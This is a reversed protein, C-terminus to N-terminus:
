KVAAVQSNGVPQEGQKLTDAFSHNRNRHGAEDERVVLGYRPMPRWRGINSPLRRLLFM